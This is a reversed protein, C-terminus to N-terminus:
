FLASLQKYMHESQGQAPQARGLFAAPLKLGWPPNGWVSPKLKNPIWEVFYSSNKNRINFMQE